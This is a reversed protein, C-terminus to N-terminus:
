EFLNMREQLEPVQSTLRQIIEHSEGLKKFSFEDVWLEQARKM